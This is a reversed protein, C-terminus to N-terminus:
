KKFVGAGYLEIDHPSGFYLYAQGLGEKAYDFSIILKLKNIIKKNNKDYDAGRYTWTYMRSEDPCLYLQYNGAVCNIPIGNVDIKTQNCKFQFLFTDSHQISYKYVTIIAGSKVYDRLVKNYRYLEQDYVREIDQKKFRFCYFLDKLKM